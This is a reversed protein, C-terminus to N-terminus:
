NKPVSCFATIILYAQHWNDLPVFQQGTEVRKLVLLSSIQVSHGFNNLAFLDSDSFVGAL